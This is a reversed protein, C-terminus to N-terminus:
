QCAEGEVVQTQKGLVGEGVGGGAHFPVGTHPQGDLGYYIPEGAVLREAEAAIWATDIAALLERDNSM